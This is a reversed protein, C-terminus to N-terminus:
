KKVLFSAKEIVDYASLGQVIKNNICIMLTCTSTIVDCNLLHTM